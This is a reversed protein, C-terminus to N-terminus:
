KHWHRRAVLMAAVATTARTAAMTSAVREVAPAAEMAAAAIRRSLTRQPTRGRRTM